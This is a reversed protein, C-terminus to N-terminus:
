SKVHPLAKVQFWKGPIKMERDHYKLVLFDKANLIWVKTKLVDKPKVDANPDVGILLTAGHKTSAVIDIENNYAGDRFQDAKIIRPAAKSEDTM